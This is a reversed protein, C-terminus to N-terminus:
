STEARVFGSWIMKGIIQRHLDGDGWALEALKQRRFYLQLGYESTFGIAGHMQQGLAVVRRSADSIFAKAMSVMMGASDPQRALAFAARYMMLRCGDVDMAMDAAKHHLVQFSGIPRGFQYRTKIYALTLELDRQIIGVLYACEALTAWLRVNELAATTDRGDGVLLDAAVFARTFTVRSLREAAITRHPEVQIGPARPEVLYLSPVGRDSQAAVIMKQAIHADPVFYKTGTLTCGGTARKATLTISERLFSGDAEAYALCGIFRGAAVRPLYQQQQAASGGARLATVFHVATSVLPSPAVARGLEEMLIALDVADGGYGGFEPPVLLGPWGLDSMKEWLSLSYGLDSEAERVVSEPCEKELFARAVDKLMRQQDSLELNM